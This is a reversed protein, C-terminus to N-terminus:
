FCKKKHDLISKRHSFQMNCNSCSYRAPGHKYKVHEKLTKETIFLKSCISCEFQRHRHPNCCIKRHDELQFFMKGCNECQRKGQHRKEHREQNAKTGYVKECFTCKFKVNGHKVNWHSILGSKTKMVIGCAECVHNKSEPCHINEIHRKLEDNRCFSQFCHECKVRKKGHRRRHRKLAKESSFVKFCVNCTHGDSEM